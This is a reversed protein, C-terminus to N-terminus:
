MSEVWAGTGALRVFPNAARLTITGQATFDTWSALNIVSGGAAHDVAAQVSMGAGVYYAGQDTIDTPSVSRIVAGTECMSNAVVTATEIDSVYYVYPACLGGMVAYQVGPVSIDSAVRPTYVETSLAPIESADWNSITINS